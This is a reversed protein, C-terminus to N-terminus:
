AFVHLTHTQASSPTPADERELPRQMMSPDDEDERAHGALEQLIDKAADRLARVPLLMWRKLIEHRINLMSYLWWFIGM